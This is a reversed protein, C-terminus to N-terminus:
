AVEVVHAWTRGLLVNSITGQHVGFRAAIAEQSATGRLARIQQVAQASLKARSNREGRPRREPHKRSANRDGVPMLGTRAAHAMNEAATVYELNAMRNDSKQGNIHNVQAGAPRPGVFASMVLHHVRRRRRVGCVSLNVYRYGDSDLSGSALRGARTGNANSERRVRGYDSVSYDGGTEAIM